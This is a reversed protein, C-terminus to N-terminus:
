EKNESIENHENIENKENALPPASPLVQVLNGSLYKPPHENIDNDNLLNLNPYVPEKKEIVTNRRVANRNFNNNNNKIKRFINSNTINENDETIQEGSLIFDTENNLSKLWNAIDIAQYAEYDIDLKYNYKCLYEVALSQYIVSKSITRKKWLLYKQYNNPSPSKPIEIAISIGSKNIQTIANSVKKCTARYLLENSKDAEICEKEKVESFDEFNKYPIKNM